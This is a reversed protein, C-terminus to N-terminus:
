TLIGVAAGLGVNAVLYAAKSRGDEMISQNHKASWSDGVLLSLLVLSTAPRTQAGWSRIFPIEPFQGVVSAGRGVSKQV